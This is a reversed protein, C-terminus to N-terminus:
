EVERKLVVMTNKWQVFEWGELGLKTLEGEIEHAIEAYKKDNLAAPIGKSM